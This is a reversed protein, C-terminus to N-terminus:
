FLPRAHFKYKQKYQRHEITAGRKGRWIDVGSGMVPYLYDALYWVVDFRNEDLIPVRCGVRHEAFVHNPFSSEHGVMKRLTDM